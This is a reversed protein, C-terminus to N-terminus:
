SGKTIVHDTFWFWDDNIIHGFRTIMGGDRAIRVYKGKLHDWERAGCVRLLAQLAGAFDMGRLDYCGTGQVAAGQEFTINIAPIGHDEIGLFVAKIRANESLSTTM